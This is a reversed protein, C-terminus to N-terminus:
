HSNHEYLSANSGLGYNRLMIGTIVTAVALVIVIVVMVAMYAGMFATSAPGLIDPNGAALAHADTMSRSAAAPASGPLEVTISYLLTSLSGLIAVALLSGFEYSVEELSSGIGAQKAPVNGVIATSAVSVTAGMGVGTIILGTVFLAFSGDTHILTIAMGVTAVAFGGCIIVRLGLKHLLAGGLIGTPVSGVAVAAVVLGASYPSFGDVLQLRQTVVLQIGSIAFLSIAATLIGASFAKNRFISFELM